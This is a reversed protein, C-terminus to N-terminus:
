GVSADSGDGGEVGEAVVEDEVGMEADEGGVSEEGGVATEVAQGGTIEGGGDFDEAVAEEVGQAVGFEDARFFEGVQEGPFMGAEVDVLAAFFGDRGV